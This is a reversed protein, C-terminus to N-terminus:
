LGGELVFVFRDPNSAVRKAVDPRHGPAVADDVERVQFAKTVADFFAL